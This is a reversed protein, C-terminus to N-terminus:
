KYMWEGGFFLAQGYSIFSVIDNSKDSKSNFFRFTRMKYGQWIQIGNERGLRMFFTVFVYFEDIFYM